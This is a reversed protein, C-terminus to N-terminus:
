SRGHRMIRKDDGRNNTTVRYYESIRRTLKLTVVFRCIFINKYLDVLLSIKNSVAM